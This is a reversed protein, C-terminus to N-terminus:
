SSSQLISSSSTGEERGIVPSLVVDLSTGSAVSSTIPSSLFCSPGSGGAETGDSKRLDCGGSVPDLVPVKM